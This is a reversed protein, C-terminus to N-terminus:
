RRKPEVKAPGTRVWPPTGERLAQDFPCAECNYEFDCLKYNVVGSEMWVCKDFRGPHAAQPIPDHPILTIM